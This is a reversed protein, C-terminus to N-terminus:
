KVIVRGQAQWKGGPSRVDLWLTQRGRPVEVEFDYTEGVGIIQRAPRTQAHDSPVPAGDKTLPRWTAPSEASQLSVSLIDDPTINIVRVRHRLSSRWVMTPSREGNLVVPAERDPGGRGLVIVHDIQADFAQDPDLVLMAGYLGSTLQRRDHLHTHYIFTGTRPPTFRVVFSEGPQILPTMRPGMGGFGHVGDYYSELDMGHWHIATAEPLENVLTIEVPEGRTLVLPPGPALVPESTRPSGVASAQTFGFAPQDGFRNPDSRMVLTLKRPQSDHASSFSRGVYSRDPASAGNRELDAMAAKRSEVHEPSAPRVKLDAKASPSEDQSTVTIGLVMGTMGASRHDHVSAPKSTGDVYLSPSVHTMIHCHFLWNGAREPIWTMAMTAGPSLLQTVVSSRQDVGFRQDRIGDGLSDVDFYFGHLHMPHVQTSLNVVRWNVRNGMEYALRETHPWVRGNIVFLVDPRLKLFAAGPDDERAIGALQERTMSTWETIVFVRDDEAPSNARDVILAGSLQTDESARFPLPMGTTTAWYHYSGAPGSAFRIRRSEGAPVEVPACADAGRDCLGQVRMTHTLDNRLTVAIVTGEPVRILPAPASPASTGEGFAEIKIAPGSEGEPRWLGQQARLELTLVGDRLTGAAQRNDNTAVQPLPVPQRVAAPCVLLVAALSIALM